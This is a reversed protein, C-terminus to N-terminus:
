MCVCMHVSGVCMCVCKKKEKESECLYVCVSVRVSVRMGECMCEPVYVCERVKKSM